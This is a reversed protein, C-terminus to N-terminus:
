KSATVPRYIEIRDGDSVTENLTKVVGFIGVKNVTLDLEPVAQVLESAMICDKISANPMVQLSKILQQTPDAYVVEVNILEQKQMDALLQQFEEESLNEYEIKEKELMSRIRSEIDLLQSQVSSMHAKLDALQQKKDHLESVLQSLM